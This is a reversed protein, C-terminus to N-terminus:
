NNSAPQRRRRILDRLEGREWMVLFQSAIFISSYTGVGVGVALVLLFPRITSGGILVLALVVLLTTLSTNLSRALSELLSANVIVELPRDLNASRGINERIRDFIVITDNVSYGAVTLLGVIFMANVETDFVKGLISFIGLVIVVDHVLAIVAAVGYRFPNPVNRFAWTVYILIGITAAISAWITKEVTERAVIASVSDFRYGEPVIQGINIELQNRIEQQESRGGGVPEVLADTRIFVGNEGARQIIAEPHGLGDLIERVDSESFTTGEEFTVELASGSSFEIGLQLRPPILLSIVGPLIIVASLLFFWKRRGVIDWSM